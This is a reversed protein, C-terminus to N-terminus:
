PKMFKLAPQHQNRLRMYYFGPAWTGINVKATSSLELTEVLIGRADYIDVEQVGIPHAWEITIIETAPNPYIKWHIEPETEEIHLVGCDFSIVFSQTTDWPCNSAPNIVTCYYNGETTIFLTDADNAFGLLTDNKYWRIMESGSLGNINVVAFYATDGNCPQIWFSADFYYGSWQPSESFAVSEESCGGLTSVVSINSSPYQQYDPLFQTTVPLPTSGSYWQYADAAQTWLTDYECLWAHATNIVPTHSCFQIVTDFTSTYAGQLNCNSTTLSVAYTGNSSYSHTPSIQTSTDGDGFDWFYTQSLTTNFPIFIIENTGAGLTYDFASQPLQQYDWDNLQDFVKIKAANRIASADTLNLGPNYNILTPDKKFIAAYFCCAAAYSGAVSPHSEDAQYLEIGPHNLRLYNWVVSVPSLETNLNDAMSLYNNRLTSDMGTYTCMVPFLPCNSVDGNKRGWTIYFMPVACPNYQKVESVLVYGGGYFDSPEVIPEQSQGQLVVYQWGGAMIKSETTPDMSHDGLTYGGPTYSDFLLTDGASLAADKIMQPLNNAGTYSNGIFLVKRTTQASLSMGAFVLYLVQIFIIRPNMQINSAFIVM